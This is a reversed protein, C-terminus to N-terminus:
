LQFFKFYLPVFFVEMEKKDLYWSATTWNHAIKLLFLSLLTYIDRM